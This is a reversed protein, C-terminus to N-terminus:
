KGRWNLQKRVSYERAGSYYSPSATTDVNPKASLQGAGGVVRFDDTQASEAAYSTTSVDTREMRVPAAYQPQPATDAGGALEHQGYPHPQSVSGHLEDLQVGLARLTDYSLYGTHGIGNDRQFSEIARQTMPGVVGDIPGKYYGRKALASQLQKITHPTANTDCLVQVWDFREPSRLVKRMVTKTQPAVHVSKAEAPRALEKTHITQYEAPIPVEKVGGADVLVHKTVSTTKAPVTVRRVQEPEIMVRKTVTKTKAPEEVLCYIEGTKPDIRQTDSLNAGRRWVLRPEGIVVTETVTEFRAPVIELREYPARVVVNETRAEYHPQRVEYRVGAERTMIEISSPAFEPDIIKLREYGEQTVVQEPVTEYVAPHVIRTFCEGPKAGSPLGGMPHGQPHGAPAPGAIAAGTLASMAMGASLISRLM